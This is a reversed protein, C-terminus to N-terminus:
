RILMMRKVESISGSTLRYYYMGSPMGSADWTTTYTGAHLHENVLAAVEEGLLNYVTLSTFGADHIMFRFTTAPNFPNPYNQELVFHAPIADSVERVATVQHIPIRWVGNPNTGAFLYQDNSTLINIHTKPNLGTNIATWTGGKDSSRYVGTTTGVFLFDGNSHLTTPFVGTLGTSSSVWNAGHDTSRYVGAAHAAFLTSDIQAFASYGLGGYTPFGTTTGTWTAGNDTSRKMSASSGILITSDYKWVSLVVIYSAIPPNLYTWTAGDDTSKAVNGLTGTYIDSGDKIFGYAPKNLNGAVWTDGNDTSRFMGYLGGGGLLYSGSMIFNFYGNDRLDLGNDLTVWSDGNNESKFFGATESGAYMTSGNIYVGLINGNILGTNCKTWLGGADTTRYLGLKAFAAIVTNGYVVLANIATGPGRAPLGTTVTDWSEGSSNAKFIAGTGIFLNTSTAALAFAGVILVPSTPSIKTWNDGNNTSAFVGSGSTAGFITTGISAFDTVGQGTTFGTNVATWNAGNDTSRYIGKTTSFMTSGAYLNSGAVCLKYAYFNSPLGGGTKTWSGGHDTSVFVGGDNFGSVAAFLKGGVTIMQGAAGLIPWGTMTPTTWSAGENSSYYLVDNSGDFIYTDSGSSHLATIQINAPLGTNAWTWTLGDDTSRYVGGKTGAFFHGNSENVTLSIVIGGEPGSTQAWQAFSVSFVLSVNLVLLLFYKM